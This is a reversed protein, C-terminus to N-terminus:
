DELGEAEVIMVANKGKMKYVGTTRFRADKPQLIEREEEFNSITEIAVGRANKLRLLIKIQDGSGDGVCYGDKIKLGAFEASKAQSRSTSATGENGDHGLMFPEGQLWQGISSAPVSLGRWVLLDKEPVGHEKIAKQIADSSTSPEGNKEAERIPIYGSGSFSKVAWRQEPTMNASFADSRKRIAQPLVAKGAWNRTDLEQGREYDPLQALLAHGERKAAWFREARELASIPNGKLAKAESKLKAADSKAQSKALKADAVKQAKLAKAMALAKAKEAKKADSEVKKAAKLQEAVAKKTAALQLKKAKTLLAKEAAKAAKVKASQEAATVKAVVAVAEQKQEAAKKAKVKANTAMIDDFL